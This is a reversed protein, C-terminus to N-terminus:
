KHKPLRVRDKPALWGHEEYFLDRNQEAILAQLAKERQWEQLARAIEKESVETTTDL